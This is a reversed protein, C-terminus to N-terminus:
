HDVTEVPEDSGTREVVSAALPRGPATTYQFVTVPATCSSGLPHFRFTATIEYAEEVDEIRLLVGPGNVYELPVPYAENDPVVPRPFWLVNGAAKSLPSRGGVVNGARTPIVAEGAVPRPTVKALWPLAPLTAEVPVLPKQFWGHAKGASMTLEALEAVIDIGFQRVKL